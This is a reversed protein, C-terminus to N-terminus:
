SYHIQYELYNTKQKLILSTLNLTLIALVCGELM